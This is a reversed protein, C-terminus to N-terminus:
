SSPHHHRTAPWRHRAPSSTIFMWVIRMAANHRATTAVGANAGFERQRAVAPRAPLYLGDFTRRVPTAPATPVIAVCRPRGALEVVVRPLKPLRSWVVVSATRTYARVRRRCPRAGARTTPSTGPPLRSASEAIEAIRRVSSLARQNIASELRPLAVSLLSSKCSFTSAPERHMAAVHRLVRQGGDGAAITGGLSALLRNEPEGM